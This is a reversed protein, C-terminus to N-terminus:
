LLKVLPVSIKNIAVTISTISKIIFMTTRGPPGPVKKAKKATIKEAIAVYAAAVSMSIAIKSEIGPNSYKVECYKPSDDAANVQPIMAVNTIVKSTRIQIRANNLKPDSKSSM